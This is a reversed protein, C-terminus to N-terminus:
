SANAARTCFGSAMVQGPEFKSLLAAGNFEIM